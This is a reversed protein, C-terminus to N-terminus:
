HLKSSFGQRKGTGPFNEFALETLRVPLPALGGDDSRRESESEADPLSRQPAPPRCYLSSPTIANYRNRWQEIIVLAKKLIYFILGNLLEHDAFSARATPWALVCNLFNPPDPISWHSQTSIAFSRPSSPTCPSASRWAAKAAPEYGAGILADIAQDLDADPM